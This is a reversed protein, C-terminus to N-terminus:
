DCFLSEALERRYYDIDTEDPRPGRGLIGALKFFGRGPLRAPGRNVVRAAIFPRGAEADECMTAELADTVKSISRPATLGLERALHGYTIPVAEPPLAKLHSRVKDRLGANQTLEGAAADVEDAVSM